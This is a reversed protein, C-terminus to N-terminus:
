KYSQSFIQNAPVAELHTHAERCETLVKMKHYQKAILFLNAMKYKEAPVLMQNGCRRSSQKTLALTQRYQKAAFGGFSSQVKGDNSLM